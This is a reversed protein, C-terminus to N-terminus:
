ANHKKQGPRFFWDLFPRGRLNRVLLLLKSLLIAGTHPILHVIKRVFRAWKWEIESLVEERRKEQRSNFSSNPEYKSSVRDGLAGVGIFSFIQGKTESHQQRLEEYDIHLVRDGYGEKLVDIAVEYLFREGILKAILYMRSLKRDSVLRGTRKSHKVSSRLWDEFKRTVAVFKATPFMEAIHSAVLTHPPSKEIWVSAEKKQSAHEMFRRFLADFPAPGLNSLESMSLSSFRFYNTDSIFDVWKRFGNETTTDVNQFVEAVYAFYLSEWIGHRNPNQVGYIEPHEALINGLWSTGSRHKGIVFVKKM